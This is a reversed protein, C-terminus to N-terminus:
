SGHGTAGSMKKWAHAQFPAELPPKTISGTYNTITSAAVIGIVELVHDKGFGAAIFRDVDQDNLLGRKEIMTKALTSLASLKADKPPRGERIAQVDIPNLGEKLALATHFAVAWTCANTVADTLLVTQVQAETFSGGHVKQFLGVLSDILVPSTAMAAAINPLMGFASQLQQLAAKSREPASEITHLPFDTM